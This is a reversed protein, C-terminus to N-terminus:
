DFLFCLVFRFNEFSSFGIANPIPIPVCGFKISANGFLWPKVKCLL